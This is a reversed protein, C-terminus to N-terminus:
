RRLTALRTVLVGVVVGVAFAAVVTPWEVGTLHALPMPAIATLLSPLSM